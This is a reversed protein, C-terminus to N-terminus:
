SNGPTVLAVVAGLGRILGSSSSSSSLLTIHQQSKCVSDSPRDHATNPVIVSRIVIVSLDVVFLHIAIVSLHYGSLFVDEIGSIEIVISASFLIMTGIFEFQAVLANLVNLSM